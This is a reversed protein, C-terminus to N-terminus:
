LKNFDQCIIPNGRWVKRMKRRFGYSENQWARKESLVFQAPPIRNSQPMLHESAELSVESVYLRRDLREREIQSITKHTLSGNQIAGSLIEAAVCADEIALTAGQGLTPVIAHAADGLLLINGYKNSFLPPTHQMRAWHLQSVYHKLTELIYAGKNSLKGNEPTYLSLLGQKTKFYDPIEEGIAFNGFLYLMQDVGNIKPMKMIGVRPFSSFTMQLSDDNQDTQTTSLSDNYILEMDDFIDGSTDPILLRFNSVGIFHTSPKSINDRVKSYRGDAGILLDIEDISKECGSATDKVTLSLLGKKDITYSVIEHRYHIPLGGRIVSYADKWRIRLGPNLALGEKSGNAILEDYIIGGSMTEARMRSRPLGHARMSQELELDLSALTSMANPNLNLGTGTDSDGINKCKDFIHIEANTYKYLQRALIAGAFGAGIIAIKYKKM